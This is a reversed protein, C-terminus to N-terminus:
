FGSARIFYNQVTMVTIEFEHIDMEVPRDRMKTIYSTKLGIDDSSMVDWFEEVLDSKEEISEAMVEVMDKDSPIIIQITDPTINSGVYRAKLKKLFVDSLVRAFSDFSMTDANEEIHKQLKRHLSHGVLVELIRAYEDGSFEERTLPHTTGGALIYTAVSRADHHSMGLVVEYKEIYTTLSICDIRIKGTEPDRAFKKSM